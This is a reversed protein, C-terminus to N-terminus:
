GHYFHRIQTCIFDLQETSMETHIPLSIVEKSLREAVPYSGPGRGFKQYAKQFHLPMPYYVMSPIGKSKLFDRLGDRNVAKLTYQHFVHSSSKDRYPLIIEDIDALGTDYYSAAVVRRQTFDGMHGLKVDLV